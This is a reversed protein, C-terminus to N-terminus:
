PIYIGKEIYKMVFPVEGAIEKANLQVIAPNSGNAIVSGHYVAIWQRVYNKSIRNWNDRVWVQDSVSVPAKQPREKNQKQNAKM